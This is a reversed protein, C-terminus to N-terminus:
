IRDPKEVFGPFVRRQNMAENVLIVFADMLDDHKEVGFGVIQAILTECGKEPFLINGNKIFNSIYALRTRKDLGRTQVGRAFYWEKSLQQHLSTQYAVEEILLENRKGTGAVLKAKELTEPFDMRENIPYPHIYLFLENGRRYLTGTVMATFDATDRKSIALDIGTKTWVAYMNTPLTDYYQIWEHYVVQGDSPLIKLLFERHWSLDNGFKKREIEVDQMTPFKGPWLITDEDTVLPYERYIGTLVGSEIEQQLRKLVSDEHLLNGVIITKLNKDGSPLVDGKFWDYTKNRSELTRVSDLDEIDDAIILDPRYELYRIGRISQEVSAAIIKARYKPIVIASRGWEDPPEEKFPGLDKRLLENQELEYKINALHQRAQTQTQSLIVVFHKKQVGLIAWLPYATTIITSKASGRFAVIVSLRTRLDEAIRFIERQFPATEYKIYAHFYISFFWEFNKTVVARRVDPDKLVKEVLKQLNQRM